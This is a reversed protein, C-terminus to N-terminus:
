QTGGTAATHALVDLLDTGLVALRHHIGQWSENDIHMLAALALTPDGNATATLAERLHVAALPRIGPVTPQM